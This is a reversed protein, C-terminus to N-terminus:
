PILLQYLFHKEQKYSKRLNEQPATFWEPESESPGERLGWKFTVTSDNGM